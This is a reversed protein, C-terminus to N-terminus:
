KKNTEPLPSVTMIRLVKGGGYVNENAKELNQRVQEVMGLQYYRKTEPSSHRM